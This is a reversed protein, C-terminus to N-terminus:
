LQRQLSGRTTGLAQKQLTRKGILTADTQRNSSRRDTPLSHICANSPHTGLESDSINPRHAAPM